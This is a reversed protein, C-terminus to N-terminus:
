IKRKLRMLKIKVKDIKISIPMRIFRMFKSKSYRQNLFWTMEKTQSSKLYISNSYYCKSYFMESDVLSFYYEWDINNNGITNSSEINYNGTRLHHSSLHKDLVCVKYKSLFKQFCSRDELVPINPNFGGVDKIAQTECLFQVPYFDHKRIHYMYPNILGSYSNFDFIFENYLYSIDFEDTSDKTNKNYKVKEYVEDCRCVVGKIQEDDKQADTLKKVMSELFTPSWSDDDDLCCIYKSSCENMGINFAKGRGVSELNSILKIKSSDKLLAIEKNKFVDNIKNTDGGDNIIIIEYDNFTQQIVSDIARKLLYNRDKTRIIVSVKNAIM